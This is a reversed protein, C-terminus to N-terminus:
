EASKNESECPYFDLTNGAYKIQAKKGQMEYGFAYTKATKEDTIYFMNDDACVNGKILVPTSKQPFQISIEGTTDEFILTATIGSETKATWNKMVLEDWPSMVVRECGAFFLVLILFTLCFICKKM